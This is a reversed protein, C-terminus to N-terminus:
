LIFGVDEQQSNSLKLLPDEPYHANKPILDEWSVTRPTGGAAAPGGLIPFIVLLLWLLRPMKM